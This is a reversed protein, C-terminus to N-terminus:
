ARGRSEVIIDPVDLMTLKLVRRWYDLRRTTARGDRGTVQHFLKLNRKLLSTFLAYDEIATWQRRFERYQSHLLHCLDEQSMRCVLEFATVVPDANLLNLLINQSQERGIFGRLFARFVFMIEAKASLPLSRFWIQDLQTIAFTTILDMEDIERNPSRAIVTGNWTSAKTTDTPTTSRSTM